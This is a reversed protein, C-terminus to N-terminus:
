DEGDNPWLIYALAMLFGDVKIHVKKFQSSM